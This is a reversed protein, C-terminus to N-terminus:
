PIQELKVIRSYGSAYREPKIQLTQGPALEEIVTIYTIGGVYLQSQPLYNKYYLWVDELTRQTTNTVALTGMDVERIDLTGEPLAPQGPSSWGECGTIQWQNWAATNKELVLVQSQPPINSAFFTLTQEGTLQVEAQGIEWLSDNYLLLATIESVPTDKGNELYPGEYSVLQQAILDTQGIRHPFGRFDEQGQQAFTLVAGSDLNGISWISGTIAMCVSVLVGTLLLGHVWIRRLSYGM